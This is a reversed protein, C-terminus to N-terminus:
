SSIHLWNGCRFVRMPEAVVGCRLPVFHTGACSSSMVSSLPQSRWGGVALWGGVGEAVGAGEDHQPRALAPLQARARAPRVAAHACGGRGVCGAM